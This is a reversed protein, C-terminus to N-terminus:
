TARKRKAKRKRWAAEKKEVEKKPVKMLKGTLDRFRDFPTRSDHDSPTKAM